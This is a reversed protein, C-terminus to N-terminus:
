WIGRMWTFELYRLVIAKETVNGKIGEFRKLLTVYVGGYTLASALASALAACLSGCQNDSRKPSLSVSPTHVSLSLKPGKTM